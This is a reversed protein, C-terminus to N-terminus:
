QYLVEEFDLSDIVYESDEIYFCIKWPFIKVVFFDGKNVTSSSANVELCGFRSCSIASLASLQKQITVLEVVLRADIALTQDTNDKTRRVSVTKAQM